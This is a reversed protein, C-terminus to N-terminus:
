EIINNSRKVKLKQKGIMTKVLILKVFIETEEFCKTNSKHNIDSLNKIKM